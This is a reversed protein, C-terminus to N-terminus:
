RNKWVSARCFRNAIRTTSILKELRAKQVIRGYLPAEERILTVLHRTDIGTIGVINQAKLWANLVITSTWHFSHSSDESIVVGRAHVKQSEFGRFKMPDFADPAPPIGYNGILPYTFFSNQGYYSPWHTSATASWERRLLCSEPAKRPLVSLGDKLNKATLFYSACRQVRDHLFIEKLDSSFFIELLIHGM